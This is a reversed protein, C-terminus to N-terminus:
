FLIWLPERKRKSKYKNEGVGTTPEKETDSRFRALEIVFGVLPKTLATIVAM